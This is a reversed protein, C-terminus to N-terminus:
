PDATAPLGGSKVRHTRLVSAALKLKRTITIGGIGLGKRDQDDLVILPQFWPGDGPRDAVFRLDAARSISQGPWTAGGGRLAREASMRNLRRGEGM